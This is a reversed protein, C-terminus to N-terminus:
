GPNNMLVSELTQLDDEPPAKPFKDGCAAGYPRRPRWINLLAALPRFPPSAARKRLRTLTRM